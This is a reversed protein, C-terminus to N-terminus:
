RKKRTEDMFVGLALQERPSLQAYYKVMYEIGTLEDIQNAQAFNQIYVYAEDITMETIM